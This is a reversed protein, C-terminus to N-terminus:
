VCDPASSSCDSSASDSSSSKSSSASFSSSKNFVDSSFVYSTSEFPTSVPNVAASSKSPATTIGSPTSVILASTKAPLVAILDTTNGFDNVVIGAPANVPHELRAEISNLVVDVRLMSHSLVFGAKEPHAILM